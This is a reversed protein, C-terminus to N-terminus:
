RVAPLPRAGQALRLGLVWATAGLLGALVDSPHHVQLYVRSLAALAVGLAALTALGARAPRSLGRTVLWAVLALAMAQTAHASPFALDSPMAVVAEAVDPRPRAVLRKGVQALLAAGGFGALTFGALRRRGRLALTGALLLALPGTVAFSGLHTVVGLFSDLAASRREAMWELGRQDLERAWGGKAGLVGWRGAAWLAPQAAVGIVLGARAMWARPLREGGRGTVLAVM